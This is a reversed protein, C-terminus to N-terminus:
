YADKSDNLFHFNGKSGTLKSSKAFDLGSARRLKRNSIHTKAEKSGRLFSFLNKTKRM